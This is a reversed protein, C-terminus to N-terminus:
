AFFLVIFALALIVYGVIKMRRSSRLEDQQHQEDYIPNCFHINYKLQVGNISFRHNPRDWPWYYVLERAGKRVRIEPPNFKGVTFMDDRGLVEENTIPDMFKVIWHGDETGQVDAETTPYQTYDVHKDKSYGIKLFLFAFAGIFLFGFINELM